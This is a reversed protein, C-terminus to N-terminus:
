KLLGKQRAKLELTNKMKIYGLYIEYHKEINEENEFYKDMFNCYEKLINIAETSYDISKKLLRINMKFYGKM